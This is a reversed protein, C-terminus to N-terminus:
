TEDHAPAETDEADEADLDVEADEDSTDDSADDQSAHGGEGSDAAKEEKEEEEQAPPPAAGGGGGKLAEPDLSGGKMLEDMMAQERSQVKKISAPYKGVMRGMLKSFKWGDAEGHKKCLKPVNGMKDGNHKKFFDSLSQVRRKHVRGEKVCDCAAAQAEEYKKCGGLQVMMVHLNGTQDCEKQAADGLTACGDAICKKFAKDCRTKPAGCIQTCAHFQDCCPTLLAESPKAGGQGGMGSFMSGGMGHCGQSTLAMPRKPVAGFGKSCSYPKCPAGGGFNAGDFQAAALVFFTLAFVTTRMKTTM